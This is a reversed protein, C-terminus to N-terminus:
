CTIFNIYSNFKETNKKKKTKDDFSLIVSTEHIGLANIIYTLYFIIKSKSGHVIITRNIFGTILFRLKNSEM